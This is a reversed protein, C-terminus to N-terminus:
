VLSRACCKSSTRVRVCAMPIPLASLRVSTAEHYVIEATTEVDSSVIGLMSLRLRLLM